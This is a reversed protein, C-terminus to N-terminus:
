LHTSENYHNASLSFIVYSSNFTIIKTMPQGTTVTPNIHAIQCKRRNSSTGIVGGEKFKGDAKFYLDLAWSLVPIINAPYYEDPDTM